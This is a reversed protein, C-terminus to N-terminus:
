IRCEAHSAIFFSQLSVGDTSIAPMHTTTILMELKTWRRINRFLIGGGGGDDDYSAEGAQCSVLQNEFNIRYSSSEYYLTSYAVQQGAFCRLGTTSGAVMLM